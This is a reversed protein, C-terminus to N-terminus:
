DTGKMQLRANNDPITVVTDLPSSIALDVVDGAALSVLTSITLIGDGATGPLRSVVTQPVDTGNIRVAARLTTAASMSAQIIFYVEYDGATDATITNTAITVGNNPLVGAMIVQNQTDTLVNITQESTSYVGGYAPIEGGPPFTFDFVAEASTGSNIITPVSGPDGVTVTGVAITAATGTTGTPGAPGAVGDAGTPGMGGTPGTAGNAGTPGMPGTAGTAGDAGTCGKPGTIGPVGNAGTDGRAGTAGPIGNAGTPGMPGTAGTAGPTGTAGKPGTAGTGGTAGTNGRSGTPGTGGNQGTPGMPGTAGTLGTAGTPGIGGTPGTAGTPCTECVEATDMFLDIYDM